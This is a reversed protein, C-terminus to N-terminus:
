AIKFAVNIEVARWFELFVHSFHIDLSRINLLYEKVMEAMWLNILRLLSFIM